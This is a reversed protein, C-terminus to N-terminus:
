FAEHALNVPSGRARDHLEPRTNSGDGPMDQPVEMGVPSEHSDFFIRFQDVRQRGLQRSVVVTQLQQFSRGGLYAVNQVVESEGGCVTDDRTNGEGQDWRVLPM